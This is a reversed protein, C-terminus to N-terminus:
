YTESRKPARSGTTPLTKELKEVAAKLKPNGAIAAQFHSHAQEPHNQRLYVEGLKLNVIAREDPEVVLKLATEFLPAAQDLQGRYLCIEALSVHSNFYSPYEQNVKELIAVAEDNRGFNALMIAARVQADPDNPVAAATAQAQEFQSYVWSAEEEEPPLAAKGM